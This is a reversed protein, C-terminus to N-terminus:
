PMQIKVDDTQWQKLVFVIIKQMLVKYLLYELM